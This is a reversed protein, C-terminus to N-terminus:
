VRRYLARRSHHMGGIDSSVGEVRQYGHWLHTNEAVLLWEPKIGTTTVIRALVGGEGFRDWDLGFGHDQLLVAFPAAPAQPSCFLADYASIGDAGLFLLALRVPGHEETFEDERELIALLGYPPRAWAKKAHDAARQERPTLAVSPQWGSPTLQHETVSILDLCRYGKFGRKKSLLDQRLVSEEYSYDVLVFCHATATSGFVKVPHGDSGHGPYYVVRSGFFKARDFGDGSRYSALWPPMAESYDKLYEYVTM